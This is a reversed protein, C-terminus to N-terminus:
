NGKKEKQIYKKGQKQENMVDPHCTPFLSFTSSPEEGDEVHMWHSKMFQIHCNQVGSPQFSHVTPSATVNKSPLIKEM